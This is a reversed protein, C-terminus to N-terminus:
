YYYYYFITQWFELFLGWFESTLYVDNATVSWSSFLHWGSEYNAIWTHSKFVEDKISWWVTAKEVKHLLVKLTRLMMFLPITFSQYTVHIWIEFGFYLTCHSFAHSHKSAVNDHNSTQWQKSELGVAPTNKEEQWSKSIMHQRRQLRPSFIKGCM